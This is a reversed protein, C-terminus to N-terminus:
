IYVYMYRITSNNINKMNIYTYTIARIRFMMNCSTSPSRMYHLTTARLCCFCQHLCPSIQHSSSTYFYKRSRDYQVGNLEDMCPQISLTAPITRPWCLLSDFFAPCGEFPKQIRFAFSTKKRRIQVKYEDDKYAHKNITTRTNKPYFINNESQTHNRM